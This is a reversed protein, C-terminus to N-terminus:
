FTQKDQDMYHGDVHRSYVSINVQALECVKTRIVYEYSVLYLIKKLM